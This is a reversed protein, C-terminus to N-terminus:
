LQRFLEKLRHLAHQVPLARAPEAAACNRPLCPDRGAQQVVVEGVQVLQQRHEDVISRSGKDRVHLRQRRPAARARHDPIQGLGGSRHRGAERHDEVEHYGTGGEGPAQLRHDPM